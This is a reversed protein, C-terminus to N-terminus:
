KFKNTLKPSFLMTKKLIPCLPAFFPCQEFNAGKIKKYFLFFM